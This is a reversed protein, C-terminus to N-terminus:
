EMVQFVDDGEASPPEQRFLRAREIHIACAKDDPGFLASAALFHEHAETFKRAVFLKV